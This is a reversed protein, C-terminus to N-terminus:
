LLQFSALVNAVHDCTKRLQPLSVAHAPENDFPPTSFVVELQIPGNARLNYARPPDFRIRHIVYEKDPSWDSIADVPDNEVPIGNFAIQIAGRPISLLAAPHRHKDANNFRHVHWLPDRRPDPKVNYPQWQEIIHRGVRIGQLPGDKKKRVRAAYGAETAFIPFQHRTTLKANSADALATIIYDLACRLNHIVDGFQVGLRPKGTKNPVISVDCWGTQPDVQSFRLAYPGEKALDAPVERELADLHERARALKARSPSLDLDLAM